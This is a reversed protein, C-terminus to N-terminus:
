PPGGSRYRLVAAVLGTVTGAVYWGIPGGGLSPRLPQTTLRAVAALALALGALVGPTWRRGVWFAGAAALAYLGAAYLEVPHRTITSGPQAFAWPLSSVTGLCAGRFVCGAHWGALGALAAPAAADLGHWLDNRLGWALTALAALSAAGTDVGGRVVLIDAPVLVPNVGQLIMATLRGVLMGVAAAGVLRDGLGVDASNLGRRRQLRAVAVAAVVGLGAQWLLTFEM